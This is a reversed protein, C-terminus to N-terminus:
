WPQWGHPHKRRHHRPPQPCPHRPQPRAHKSGTGPQPISPDPDAPPPAPPPSPNQISRLQDRLGAPTSAQILGLDGQSPRPDLHLAYCTGSLGPWCIWHTGFEEQIQTLTPQDHQSTM